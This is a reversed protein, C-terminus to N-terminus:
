SVLEIRVFAVALAVTGLAVDALPSLTDQTTSTAGSHPLAFVIVLVCTLSATYSGLLYGTMLRAPRELLLMVTTAAVLTPNLSTLLSLLAIQGM